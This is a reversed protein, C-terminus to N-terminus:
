FGCQTLPVGDPWTWLGTPVLACVPAVLTWRGQRTLVGLPTGNVLALLPPSDPGNPRVNLGEADVSVFVMPCSRPEPCVTYRTYVWGLPQPPPPAPPPAPAYALPPPPPAYVPPPAPPLPAYPNIPPGLVVPCPGIGHSCFTPAVPWGAGDPGVIVQAHSRGDRGMYIGQADAAGASIALALLAVPLRM